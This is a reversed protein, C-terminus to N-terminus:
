GTTQVKEITKVIQPKTKNEECGPTFMKSPFFIYSCQGRVDVGVSTHGRSGALRTESAFIFGLWYLVHVWEGLGTQGNGCFVHVLLFPM